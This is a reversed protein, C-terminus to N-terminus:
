FSSYATRIGLWFGIVVVALIGLGLLLYRVWDPIAPWAFGGVHFSGASTWGSENSAGDIAKVRWYYPSEKKTLELKEEETLFYESESLGTRELVLTAFDEDTAIQLTYVLPLSPDAVDAWDFQLPQKPKDEIVSPQPTSPAEQEMDFAFQRTTEGDTATITHAGGASPPIIIAVSFSGNSATTATALEVPESEYTVTITTNAKFGTGSVLIEDGVNGSTASIAAEHVAVFDASGSLTGDSAVVTYSGAPSEPLSFTGSFSGSADTSITAMAEGNYTITVSKAAGFGIGSVTVKTGSAGTIPTVTMKPEVTLPVIALNGDSDMAKITHGGGSSVPITFTGTFNGNVDAIAVGVGIPVDDLYIDINRSGGFGSGSVTVQAGVLGSTPTISM